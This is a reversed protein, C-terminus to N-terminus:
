RILEEVISKFDIIHLASALSCLACRDEDREKYHITPADVQFNIPQIARKDIVDGVPVQLWRGRYHKEAKKIIVEVIKDSCHIKIWSEELPFREINNTGVTDHYTVSLGYFKEKFRDYMIKAVQPQELSLKFNEETVDVYFCFEENDIINDNGILLDSDKPDCYIPDLVVKEIMVYQYQIYCTKKIEIVKKSDIEDKQENKNIIEYMHSTLNRYDEDNANSCFVTFKTRM